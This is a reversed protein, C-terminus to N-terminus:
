TDKLFHARFTKYVLIIMVMYVTATCPRNIWLIYRNNRKQVVSVNKTLDFCLKHYDNVRVFKCLFNGKALEVGPQM